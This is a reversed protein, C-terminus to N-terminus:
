IQGFGTQWKWIEESDQLNIFGACSLLSCKAYIEPVLLFQQTQGIHRVSALTDRREIFSDPGVELEAM